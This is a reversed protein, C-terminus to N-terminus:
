EMTAYDNLNQPLPANQATEFDKKAQEPKGWLEYATGRARLVDASPRIELTKTYDAVALDYRGLMFLVGARAFYTEASRPRLRVAQNLLELAPAFKGQAALTSAYATYVPFRYPNEKLVREFDAEAAQYQGNYFYAAGRAEYADWNAPNLVVAKNYADIAQQKKGDKLYGNGRTVYETSTPLSSCAGLLLVGLFIFPKM